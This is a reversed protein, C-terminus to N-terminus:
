RGEQSERAVRLYDVGQRSCAEQINKTVAAAYPHSADVVLSPQKFALLEEMEERSKAGRCLNVWSNEKVLEAGYDSVVSVLAPIEHNGCYEALRRGETTGGFIIVKCM